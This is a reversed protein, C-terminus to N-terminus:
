SLNNYITGTPYFINEQEWLVMPLNASQIDLFYPIFLDQLYILFLHYNGLEYFSLLRYYIDLTKGLETFMLFHNLPQFIHNNLILEKLTQHLVYLM